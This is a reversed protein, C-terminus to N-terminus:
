IATKRNLGLVRSVGAEDFHGMLRQKFHLSSPNRRFTKPLRNWKEAFTVKFSHWSAPHSRLAHPIEIELSRGRHSERYDAIQYCSTSDARCLADEYQLLE